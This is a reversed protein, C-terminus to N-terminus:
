AAQKQRATWARFRARQCTRCVRRGDPTVYTNEPTFEHDRLCKTKAANISAITGPARLSNVRQTVPELHAPNVCARNRCLHDITLGDPIPGVFVEYAFRHGYVLQHRVMLRVYGNDALCGNWKWCGVETETVNLTIRDRDDTYRYSKNM